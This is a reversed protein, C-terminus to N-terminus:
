VCHSAQFVNHCKLYSKERMHDGDLISALRCRVGHTNWVSSFLDGDVVPSPPLAGPADDPGSSPM